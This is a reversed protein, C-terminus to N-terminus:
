EHLTVYRILDANSEFGMKQMIRAKYTSVTKRNIELEDAISQISKGVSILKLIQEERQSLILKESRGVRYKHNALLDAMVSSEFHMKGASVQRIAFILSELDTGKTMFGQAGAGIVSKVVTPDDHMTLVLIPLDPFLSRLTEVAHVGSSDPLSLDLIVLHPSWDSKLSDICEALSSAERIDKVFPNSSLLQSLGHRLLSHDDVLLLSIM